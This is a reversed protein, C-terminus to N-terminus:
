VEVNFESEVAHMSSARVFDLVPNKSVTIGAIDQWQTGDISAGDPTSLREFPYDNDLYFPGGSDGKGVDSASLDPEFYIDNVKDIGFSTNSGTRAGQREFTEYQSTGDDEIRELTSQSVTGWIDGTTTGIDTAFQYQTSQSSVIAADVNSPAGSPNRYDDVNQFEPDYYYTGNAELLAPNSVDVRVDSVTQEEDVVHGSVVMEDGNIPTCTTGLFLKIDDQSDWSSEDSSLMAAGAPMEDWEDRYYLDDDTPSVREPEPADIRTRTVATPIDDVTTEADTGRGAVGDISAPVSREIRRYDASGLSGRDYIEVEILKDGNRDTTVWVDFPQDVNDLHREVQRRADHASKIRVWQERPMTDYVPAREPTVGSTVVAEHNTHVYSRVYPVETRPDDVLDSLTEKSIDELVSASVGLGSLTELFRRRGMRMLEDIMHSM